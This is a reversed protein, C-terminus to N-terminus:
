KEQKLLENYTKRSQEIAKKNYDTEYKSKLINDRMKVLADYQIGSIYSRLEDPTYTIATSYPILAKENPRELKREAATMKSIRTIEENLINLTNAMASNITPLNQNDMRVSDAFSKKGQTYLKANEIRKAAYTSYDEVESFLSQFDKDKQMKEKMYVAERSLADIEDEQTRPKYTNKAWKNQDRIASQYVVTPSVYKALEEVQKKNKALSAPTYGKMRMFQEVMAEDVVITGDEKVESYGTDCYGIELKLGGKLAQSGATTNKLQTNLSTRVLGAVTKRSSDNFMENANSVRNANIGLRIDSDRSVKAGDFYKNLLYAKESDSSANQLEKKQKATLVNSNEAKAMAHKVQKATEVEEVMEDFYKIFNYESVQEGKKIQSLIKNKEGEAIQKMILNRKFLTAKLWDQKKVVLNESYGSWTFTRSEVDGFILQWDRIAKQLTYIGKIGGNKPSYRKINKRVWPILKEIEPGVGSLSLVKDEGIRNLLAKTLDNSRNEPWDKDLLDYLDKLAVAQPKLSSKKNLKALVSDDKLLMEAQIYSGKNICATYKKLRVSVTSSTNFPSDCKDADEAAFVPMTASFALALLFVHLKKMKM